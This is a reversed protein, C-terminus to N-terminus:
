RSKFSFDITHLSDNLDNLQFTINTTNGLSINSAGDLSYFMELTETANIIGDNTLTILVNSTNYYPQINSVMVPASEFIESIAFEGNVGLGNDFSAIVQNQSTYISDIQRPSTSPYTSVASIDSGLLDFNITRGGGSSYDIILKM